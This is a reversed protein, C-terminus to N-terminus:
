LCVGPVTMPSSDRRLRSPSADEQNGATVAIEIRGEFVFTAPGTLWVDTTENNEIRLEVKLNGGPESM